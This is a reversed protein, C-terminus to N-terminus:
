RQRYVALVLALAAVVTEFIIEGMLGTDRVNSVGMAILFAAIVMAGAISQLELGRKRNAALNVLEGGGFGLVLAFWFGFAPFLGWVVGMVLACAAAAGAARTLHGLTPAYLGSRAVRACDRCRIGVPTYVMCRVCVPKSCRSCTLNTVENPHRACRMEETMM